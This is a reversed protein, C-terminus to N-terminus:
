LRLRDIYFRSIFTQKSLKNTYSKLRKYVLEKDYIPLGLRTTNSLTKTTSDTLLPLKKKLDSKLHSTPNFFPSQRKFFNQLLHIPKKSPLVFM